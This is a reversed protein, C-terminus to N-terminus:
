GALMPGVLEIPHGEPDAVVAARVHHEPRDQGARLISGGLTEVLACTANVDPVTFVLWVEGPYVPHPPPPLELFQTLILVCGNPAGSDSMWSQTQRVEAEGGTNRSFTQLGIAAYFAEAQPLDAVVLKFHTMSISM